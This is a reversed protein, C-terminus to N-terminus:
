SLKARVREIVKKYFFHLFHNDAQQFDLKERCLEGEERKYDLTKVIKTWDYLSQFFFSMSAGGLVPPPGFRVLTLTIRGTRGERYCQKYNYPRNKGSSYVPILPDDRFHPTPTSTGETDSNSTLDIDVDENPLNELVSEILYSDDIQMSEDLDVLEEM